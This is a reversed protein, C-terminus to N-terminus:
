FKFAGHSQGGSCAEARVLDERRKACATHALDIARLVRLEAAIHRDFYERIMQRVVRIADCAEFPLGLREGRQIVRMDRRQVTQLLAVAAMQEDHLQDFALRQGVPDRAAREREFLRQSSGNLDRVSELSRV